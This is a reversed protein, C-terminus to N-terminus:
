FAAVYNQQCLPFKCSIFLLFSDPFFLASLFASVQLIPRKYPVMILWQIIIHVYNEMSCSMETKEKGRKAHTVFVKKKKTRWKRALKKTSAQINLSDCFVVHKTKAHEFHIDNFWHIMIPSDCYSFLQQSKLEKKMLILQSLVCFCKCFFDTTLNCM